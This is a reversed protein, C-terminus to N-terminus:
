LSITSSSVAGTTHEIKSLNIATNPVCGGVALSINSMKSLMGVKPYVDINKVIDALMTGAITIGKKEGLMLRDITVGFLSAIKPIITIDPYGQGNELKSIAKDSVDLKQALTQQTMGSTKRLKAIASGITKADM